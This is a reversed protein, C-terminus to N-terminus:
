FNANLWSLSEAEHVNSLPEDTIADEDCAADFLATRVNEPPYVDTVANPSALANFDVPQFFEVRRISEVGRSTARVRKTVDPELLTQVFESASRSFTSPVTYEGHLLRKFSEADNGWATDSESEAEFPTRHRLLWWAFVGVSWWDVAADHGKATIMEPARFEPDGCLTYSRGDDRKAFRFDVLAIHGRRDVLMNYPSLGRFVLSQWHLHDIALSVCATYFAAANENMGGRLLMGLTGIAETQVLQSRFM